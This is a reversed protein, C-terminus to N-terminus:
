KWGPTRRTTYHATYDAPIHICCTCIEGPPNTPHVHPPDVTIEQTTPHPVEAHPHDTTPDNHHTVTSNIAKIGTHPVHADHAIDPTTTIIGTDHGPAAEIHIMVDQAAIDTLIHNHGPIVKSTGTKM